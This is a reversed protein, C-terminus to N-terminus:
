RWSRCGYRQRFASHWSLCATSASLPSLIHGTQRRLAVRTLYITAVIAGVAPAARLVGLGWPGTQLIDRAYIPLLATVGGLLLASLDLSISGFIIKNQRIYTFGAFVEELSIPKKQRPPYNVRILVVLITAIIFFVASIGYVVEPGFIYLLGGLVPGGIISIQNAGTGAAVGRSIMSPPVIGPLLTHLTPSHFARCVGIVLVAAFILHVTLHGTVSGIALVAACLAMGTQSIAVVFRRDYHDAVHGVLVAGPVSPIFMILGILGLDLASNTLDYVQWGIAVFMMHYAFATTVRTAWYMMFQGHRLLSYQDDATMEGSHREAGALLRPLAQDLPARRRRRGARRDRSGARRRDTSCRCRGSVPRPEFDHRHLHFEGGDRSGVYRQAHPDAGALSAGRRQRFGRCRHDCAHADVAPLWSSLGFAATALGYVVVAGIMIRGAHKDIQVNSLYFSMLLAGAAPSSRLLGLGEPGADLIDRAFIPLLATVGGLLVAALDLTIAGFIVPRSKIYTFGAFVSELTVAKKLKAPREIKVLSIFIAAIVFMAFCVWYVANTGAALLFGGLAPGGIVAMQHATAGAAIARSLIEQPM